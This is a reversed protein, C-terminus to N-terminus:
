VGITWLVGSNSGLSKCQREPAPFSAPITTMSRATPPRSPAFSTRRRPWSDTAGERSAAQPEDHSISLSARHGVTWSLASERVLCVAVFRKEVIDTYDPMTM